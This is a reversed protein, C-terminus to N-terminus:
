NDNGDLSIIKKTIEGSIDIAQAPKGFARDFLERIAPVNGKKAEAILKRGIPGIEKAVMEALLQRTKEAELASFGKPRGAGERKGGNQM